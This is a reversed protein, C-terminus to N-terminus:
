GVEQLVFSVILVLDFQYQLQSLLEWLVFVDDPVMCYSQNLLLHPM